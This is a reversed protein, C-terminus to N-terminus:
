LTLTENLAEVEEYNEILESLDEPNQKQFLTHLKKQKAGLFKLIEALAKGDKAVLDEYCVTYSQYNKIYESYFNFEKKLSERYEIFLDPNISIKKGSKHMKHTTKTWYCQAYAIVLSTYSRLIDKRYLFIIKLNKNDFIIPKFSSEHYKENYLFKFGVAKVSSPHKTFVYNDLYFSLSLDRKKRNTSKERLLEGFSIINPHNNLCSHLFTSGSRPHCLIIFRTYSRHGNVSLLRKLRKGQIPFSVLM